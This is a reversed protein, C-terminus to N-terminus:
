QFQKGSNENCRGGQGRRKGRARLERNELGLRHRLQMARAVLHDPEIESLTAIVRAALLKVRAAAVRSVGAPLFRLPAPILLRPKSPPLTASISSTKSM